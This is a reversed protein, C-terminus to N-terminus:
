CNVRWNPDLEQRISFFFTSPLGQLSDRGQELYLLKQGDPSVSPMRCGSKSHTLQVRASGDEKMRFLQLIGGEDAHSVIVERLEGAECLATGCILFSMFQAAILTKM